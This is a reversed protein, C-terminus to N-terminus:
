AVGRLRVGPSSRGIRSAEPDPYNADFWCEHLGVCAMAQSIDEIPSEVEVTHHDGGKLTLIVRLKDALPDNSVEMSVRFVGGRSRIRPPLAENCAAAAQVMTQRLTTEAM